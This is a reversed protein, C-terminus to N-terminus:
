RTDLTAFFGRTTSVNLSAFTSSTWPQGGLRFVFRFATADYDYWIHVSVDQRAVRVATLYASMDGFILDGKTGLASAAETLYIPRGLLRGFPAGADPPSYAPAAAAVSNTAPLTLAQLQLDADPHAIWIGRKRAQPLVRNWLNCVNSYRITASPQGSDPAVIITGTSNLIGLPRGNGSGNIIANEVAFAMKEPVKAAIHERLATSDQLLEDTVGV